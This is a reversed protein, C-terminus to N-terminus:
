LNLPVAGFCSAANSADRLSGEVVTGCHVEFATCPDSNEPQASVTGAFLLLASFLAAMALARTRNALM